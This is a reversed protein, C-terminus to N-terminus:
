ILILQKNRARSLAVYLLRNRLDKNYYPIGRKSYVMDYLNVYINGYTSGQTKHTTLAYGYDLDKSVLLKNDLDYLSEALLHENKFSYYESKWQKTRKATQLRENWVRLFRDKNLPKNTDVIFLSKQSPEGSSVDVLKVLYGEIDYSKHIYNYIESMKGNYYIIYDESNTIIPTNFEDVITSYATLLDDKTIMENPYDLVHDRIYKNWELINDNTYATFKCHNIDKQFERSTFDDVLAQQFDALDSLNNSLYVQFGKDNVIHKRTHYLYKIADSRGTRIDNRCMDLVKLSPNDTDQRMITYLTVKGYKRSILSGQEKVPPLQYPDGVYLIKTNFYKARQELYTALASNIMPYEDIVVLSYNRLLEEGRGSTDFPINNIDFDDLNYNPRLKLLQHVTKGKINTFKEIVRKAKHTPASVCVSGIKKRDRIIAPLLTSKGTGAAGELIYVVNNTYTFNICKEIAILQEDTYPFSYNRPRTDVDTTLDTM